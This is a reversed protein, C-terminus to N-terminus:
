PLTRRDVDKLVTRALKQIDELTQGIHEQDTPWTAILLLADRMAYAQAQDIPRQRQILSGKHVRKTTVISLPSKRQQSM